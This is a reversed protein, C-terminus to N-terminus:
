RAAARRRNCRPELAPGGLVLAQRGVFLGGRLLQLGAAVACALRGLAV